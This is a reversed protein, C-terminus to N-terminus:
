FWFYSSISYIVNIYSTVYSTCSSNTKTFPSFIQRSQKSHWSLTHDLQILSPADKETMAAVPVQQQHLVQMLTSSTSDQFTDFVPNSM